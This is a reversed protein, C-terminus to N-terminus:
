RRDRSSKGTPSGWYMRPVEPSAHLARIGRSPAAYDSDRYATNRFACGAAFSRIYEPSREMLFPGAPAGLLQPAVPEWLLDQLFLSGVSPLPSVPRGVDASMDSCVDVLPSVLLEVEPSSVSDSVDSCVPTISSLSLEVSLRGVLVDPSCDVDFPFCSLKIDMNGDDVPWSFPSFAPPPPLSAPATSSSCIPEEGAHHRGGRYGCARAADADGTGTFM